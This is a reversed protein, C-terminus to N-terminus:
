GANRSRHGVEKGQLREGSTESWKEGDPNVVHLSQGLSGAVVGFRILAEDVVSHTVSPDGTGGVVDQGGFLVEVIGEDGNRGGVGRLGDLFDPGPDRRFASRHDFGCLPIETPISGQATFEAAVGAAAPCM